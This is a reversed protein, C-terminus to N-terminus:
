LVCGAQICVERERVRFVDTVRAFFSRVREPRDVERFCPSERASSGRRDVSSAARSPADPRPPWLLVRRRRAIRATLYAERSNASMLFRLIKSRGGATLPVRDSAGVETAGAHRVTDHHVGLTTAITGVRWHEADYLRRIEAHQEPTIM